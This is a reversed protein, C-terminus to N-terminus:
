STSCLQRNVSLSVLTQNSVEKESAIKDETVGRLKGDIIRKRLDISLPKPM